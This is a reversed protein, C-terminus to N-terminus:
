FTGGSITNVWSPNAGSNAQLFYGATGSAGSALVGVAGAGAGLVVGYQALTAAGTGGNAVPLTGTVKATLSISGALMANTIGLAKVRLTDSNIEISSDDVNVFMTTGSEGLGAGATIAGAGSFQTFALETTNVTITGDTTLIWGSDAYTTGKEVFTFAGSTVEADVDFDTARKLIWKASGTGLQFVYYIGNRLGGDSGTTEGTVLVRDNLALTQGDVSATPIVENVHSTFTGASTSAWGATGAGSSAAYLEATTKAVVSNKVDLGTKVADVYEKTVLSTAGFGSRTSYAAPVTVVGTGNPTLTIDANAGDTITINGTTANGTQLTLDYDGSSTVVGAASGTGTIVSTAAVSDNFSAAGADSMDLTLATITSGGDNGKVLFDKNLVGTAIVFDSSANSLTAITTGGDKFFVDGGDADLIIDTTADLTITSGSDIEAIVPTTLTKNTLTDTTAKGVFTDTADPITWTQDATPDTVTLTTEFNDATGEFVVSSDSLYLGSVIPSTLTKSTLTEAGTLTAFSESQLAANFEAVTGTLTNTGLDISKASLTQAHANFTFEDGGTLLPLTVIRDDTLESVAFVYQHDASTDNIQPTTVVPSTLTKNTLTQTGSISAVEVGGVKVVGSGKAALLMNINTDTGTAALQPGAGAAANTIELENVASGTQQFVLLEKGAPDAIFGADAFVPATLTKNTLTDTTAKGVLTDDAKPLVVTFDANQGVDAVGSLVIAATGNSTGELFKMTPAAAATTGINLTDIASATNTIIGSSATLTGPAHALMGTFYQGGVVHVANGNHSGIYLRGGGNDHAGTGYTIGLEASQVGSVGAAPAATSSASSNKKIQLLTAM